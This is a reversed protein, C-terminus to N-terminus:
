GFQVALDPAVQNEYGKCFHGTSVWAHIIKLNKPPMHYILGEAMWVYSFIEFFTECKRNPLINLLTVNKKIRM